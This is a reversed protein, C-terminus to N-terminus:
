KVPQYYLTVVGTNYKKVDTLTFQKREIKGTYQFTGAGLIVPVIILRHEDILGAQTLASVITGSGLIVIDKGPQEKLEKINKEIDGKLLTTNEWDASKLTKSFVIKDLGNMKGAIVPDDTETPWYAAMLEYTLRGFLLLDASNLMDVAYDFFEDNLAHWSLDGGPGALYGDLSVMNSTIVRRM